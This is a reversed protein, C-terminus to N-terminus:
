CSIDHSNRKQRLDTRRCIAKTCFFLRAKKQGVECGEEFTFETFNRKNNSTTSSTQKM